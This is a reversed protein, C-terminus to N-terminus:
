LGGGISLRIPFFSARVRNYISLYISLNFLNTLYISLYISFTYLLKLLVTIGFRNGYYWFGIKDKKEIKRYRGIYMSDRAGKIRESKVM